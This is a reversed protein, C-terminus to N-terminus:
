LLIEHLEVKKNHRISPIADETPYGIPLLAVPIIEDSLNIISKTKVPDFSMVWVSGLGQEQATLMLYTTVTSADIEGSKVGDFSRKWCASCDYCILLVLPADFRYPTIEDVKKLDTLETIVKIRHPQNNCATPAIRGIELICELKKKEVPTNKYSRVSYRKRALEIFTV